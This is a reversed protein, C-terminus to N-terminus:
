NKIPKILNVLVSGELVAASVKPVQVTPSANPVKEICNILDTKNGSRMQGCKSLAAPYKLTEHCFFENIDSGTIHTSIDMQSFLSVHM